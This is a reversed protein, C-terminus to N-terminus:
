CDPRGHPTIYFNLIFVKLTMQIFVISIEKNSKIKFFGCVIRTPQPM